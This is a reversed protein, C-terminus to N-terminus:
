RNARTASSITTNARRDMSCLSVATVSTSIASSCRSRQGISRHIARGPPEEAGPPSCGRRPPPATSLYRAPDGDLRQAFAELGAGDVRARLKGVASAARSPMKLPSANSAVEGSPDWNGSAERQGCVMASNAFGINPCCNVMAPTRGGSTNAARKATRAATCRCWRRSVVSGSRPEDASCRIASAARVVRVGWHRLRRGGGRISSRGLVRICRQIAHPPQGLDSSCCSLLPILALREDSRADDSRPARVLSRAEVARWM